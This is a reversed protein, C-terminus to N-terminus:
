SNDQRVVLNYGCESLCSVTVSVRNRSEYKKIAQVSVVQKDDQWVVGNLADMVLKLCNDIDPKKTHPKGILAAKRTKSVSKPPEFDFEVYVGVNDATPAKGQLSAKAAWAVAKEAKATATPTYTVGARTFRPRGKGTPKMDVSFACFVTYPLDFIQSCLM